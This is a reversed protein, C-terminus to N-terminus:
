VVNRQDPSKACLEPQTVRGEALGGGIFLVSDEQTFFEASGLSSLLSLNDNITSYKTAHTPFLGV